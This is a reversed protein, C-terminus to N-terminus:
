WSKFVAAGTFILAWTASIGFLIKDEKEMRVVKNCLYAPSLNRQLRRLSTLRRHNKGNWTALATAAADGNFPGYIAQNLCFNQCRTFVRSNTNRCLPDATAVKRPSPSTAVDLIVRELLAINFGRFAAFDGRLAAKKWIVVM